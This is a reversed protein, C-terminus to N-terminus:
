NNPAGCKIWEAIMDLQAETLPVQGIQLGLTTPMLTACKTAYKNTVGAELLMNCLFRSEEPTECTIYPGAPKDFQYALLAKRSSLADGPVLLLDGQVNNPDGHCQADACKATGKTDMIADFIDNTFSVACGGGDGNPMCDTGGSTSSATSVNLCRGAVCDPDGYMVAEETSCGSAYAGAVGIGVIAAILAVARARMAGRKTPRTENVDAMARTRDAM